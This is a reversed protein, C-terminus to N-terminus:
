LSADEGQVISLFGRHSVGRASVAVVELSESGLEAVTLSAVDGWSGSANQIAIPATRSSVGDIPSPRGLSVARCYGRQVM